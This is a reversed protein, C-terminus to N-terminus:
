SMEKIMSDIFAIEDNTLGFHAYLKEDTWVESMDMMPVFRFRDRTMHQTNKRLSLMFRFFRTKIYSEFSSAEAEGDFAGVVIYTETCVSGPHAIIPRGSIQHPVADGGNYAMSMLVKYKDVLGVNTTVLDPAVWGVADRAYIKVAKDYQISSFDKFNTQFGFPRRPSVQDDLFVDSIELVKELTTISQNHRILVDHSNLARTMSSITSGAKVSRFECGVQESDERLFYCVGGKLEVGPFAESADPIDVLIAMGQDNLMEARFEDLGKGGAYWRAPIIMSLYRPNLFKAAQVFKHYIPSASAGHGGDKLQYPPNGIIVDFQMDGFIEQIDMHIFPYAYSERGERDEGALVEDKAGCVKCKGDKGFEHEVLPFAINGEPTDFLVASFCNEPLDPNQARTADSACYVTRRSMLATLETIAIGYVQNRLIHERRDTEDPIIKVLGNMLRKVIERLFVGTKCCPDLFKLTPDSWVSAPLLDLMQNALGPSTFVEDNSLNAITDLVDPASIDKIKEIIHRDDPTNGDM